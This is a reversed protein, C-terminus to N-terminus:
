HDRFDTAYTVMQPSQVDLDSFLGRVRQQNYIHKRRFTLMLPSERGRSLAFLPPLCAPGADTLPRKYKSRACCSM